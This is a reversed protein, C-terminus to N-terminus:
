QPLSPYEPKCPDGTKPNNPFSFKCSDQSCYGYEYNKHRLRPDNIACSHIDRYEYLVVSYEASHITNPDLNSFVSYKSQLILFGSPDTAREVSKYVEVWGHFNPPEVIPFEEAFSLSAVLGIVFAILVKFMSNEKKM